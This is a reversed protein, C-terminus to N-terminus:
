ENSRTPTIRTMYAGPTSDAIEVAGVTKQYYDVSSVAGIIAYAHGLDRMSHLCKLMLATGVGKGRCASAVGTPGFFGRFTADYCAFGIIHGAADLATLCSIPHGAFAMRVEDAWTSGFKDEVWEIVRHREFAQARHIRVDGGAARAIAPELPPLQYLKVLLDAMIIKFSNLLRARDACWIAIGAVM